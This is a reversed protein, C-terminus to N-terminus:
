DPYYKIEVVKCPQGNKISACPNGGQCTQCFEDTVSQGGLVPCEGFVVRRAM